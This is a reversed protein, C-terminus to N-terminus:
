SDDEEEVASELVERQPATVLRVSQFGHLMADIAHEPKRESVYITVRNRELHRVWTALEGVAEMSTGLVCLCNHKHYAHDVGEPPAVAPDNPDFDPYTHGVTVGVCPRGFGVESGQPDFAGGNAAAFRQIAYVDAAYQTEAQHGSVLPALPCDPGHSWLLQM